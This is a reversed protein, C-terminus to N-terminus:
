RIIRHRQIGTDIVRSLKPEEKQNNTQKITQVNTQNNSQNHQARLINAVPFFPGKQEKESTPHKSVPGSGTSARTSIPTSLAHHTDTHKATSPCTDIDPFPSVNAPTSQTMTSPSETPGHPPTSRLSTPCHGSSEVHAAATHHNQRESIM